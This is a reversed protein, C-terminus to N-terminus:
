YYRSSFDTKPLEIFQYSSNNLMPSKLAMEQPITYVDKVRQGVFVDSTLPIKVDYDKNTPIIYFESENRDKQRAMLKWSNGGADKDSDKNVLYGVLRYSDSSDRSPININRAETERVVGEFTTRDTRNLPPYLPDSIVKHDRIDVTNQQHIPQQIPLQSKVEKQKEKYSNETMCVFGSPCKQSTFLYILYILSSFLIIGFISLLIWSSSSTKSKMKNIYIKYNM